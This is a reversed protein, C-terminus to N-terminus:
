RILWNILWRCNILPILLTTKWSKTRGKIPYITNVSAYEICKKCFEDGWIHRKKSMELFLSVLLSNAHRIYFEQLESSQLKAAYKNIEAAVVFDNYINYKIKEVSKTRTLSEGEYVYDYVLVDCYVIRAVFPLIQFNFLVDQHTINPYFRLKLKEILERSYLSRWISSMDGGHLIYYDGACVKDNSLLNNDRITEGNSTIIKNKYFCVEANDGLTKEAVRQLCNPEIYDDSDVFMVYEGVATDLGANRAMSVGGNPQHIVRVLGSYAAAYEDCILASGDASGDNVLIIEYDERPLNQNLLSDVCRRLWREANYVPVIISLQKMM